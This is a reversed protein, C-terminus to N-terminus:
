IRDVEEGGAAGLGIGLMAGAHTGGGVQGIGTELRTDEDEACNWGVLQTNGTNMM